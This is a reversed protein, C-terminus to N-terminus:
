CNDGNLPFSDKFALCMLQMISNSDMVARDEIVERVLSPPSHLYRWVPPLYNVIGRDQEASKLMLFWLYCRLVIAIRPPEQIEDIQSVGVLLKKKHNIYVTAEYGINGM